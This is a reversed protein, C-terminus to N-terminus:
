KTMQQDSISQMIQQQESQESKQETLISPLAIATIIAIIMVIIGMVTGIYGTILGALAMGSGGISGSSRRIEARALHGCIVAPIGSLVGMCLVVSLIGLILSWVALASTKAAEVADDM